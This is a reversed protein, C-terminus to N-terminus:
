KVLNDVMKLFNYIDFPKLLYDDAGCVKSFTEINANESCLILPIHKTSPYAKIARCFTAAAGDNDPHDLIIIHPDIETIENINLKEFSKIVEYNTNQYMLEITEVYDVDNEIVLIRKM